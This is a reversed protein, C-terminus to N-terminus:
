IRDDRGSCGLSRQNEATKRCEAPHNKTVVVGTLYRSAAYPPIPACLGAVGRSFM